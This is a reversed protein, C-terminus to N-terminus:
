EFYYWKTDVFHLVTKSEIGDSFYLVYTYSDYSKLHAREWSAENGAGCLLRFSRFIFFVLFNVNCRDYSANMFWFIMPSIFQLM